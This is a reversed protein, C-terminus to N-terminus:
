PYLLEKQWVQGDSERRYHERLHLRFRRESWFEMELPAVRYGSWFPPRDIKKAGFKATYRAVAKELDMGGDMAKSQDSAWAGIQAGRPRTAFYADAEDPSVENVPGAIRVQRNLSKWHFLLAAKPNEKIELGKRSNFNTYFVFGEDDFSKLLVMRSSPQGNPGVTAVSMSEPLSPESEKADEFWSAFKELPNDDTM